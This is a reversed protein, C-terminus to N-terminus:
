IESSANEWPTMKQVRGPFCFAVKQEAFGLLLVVRNNSSSPNSAAPVFGKSRVGQLASSGGGSGGPRRSYQQLLFQLLCLEM